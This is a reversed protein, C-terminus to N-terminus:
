VKHYKDKWNETSTVEMKGYREEYSRKWTRVAAQWNKMPKNRGVTWGVMTHYDFFREADLQPFVEKAYIKIEEITPKVFKKSM